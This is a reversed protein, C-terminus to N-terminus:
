RTPSSTSSRRTCPRSRTPTSSARRSSRRCGRPTCSRTATPTASARSRRRTACCGRSSPAAAGRAPDRRARRRHVRRRASGPGLRAIGPVTRRTACSTSPSGSRAHGGRHPRLGPVRRRRRHVAPARAPGQGPKPPAPPPEEHWHLWGARALHTVLHLVEGDEDVVRRRPVERAREAGIIARGVLATVPPDFRRSRASRRSTWGPSARGDRTARLYAAAGRGGAARARFSGAVDILRDATGASSM